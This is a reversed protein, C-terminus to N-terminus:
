VCLFHGLCWCCLLEGSAGLPLRGAALLSLSGDEFHVSIETLMNEFVRKHGLTNDVLGVDLGTVSNQFDAGTGTVQSNSNELLSSLHNGDLHIRSHGSLQGFSDLALGLLLLQFDHESVTDLGLEGVKVNANGVCRVLDRRRQNELQQVQRPRRSHGHEHELVLKGHTKQGSRTVRQVASQGDIHLHPGLDRVDHLDASTVESRRGIDLRRDDLDLDLVGTRRDVEVLPVTKQSDAENSLVLGDVGAELGGSDQGHQLLVVLGVQRSLSLDNGISGTEGFNDLLLHDLNESVSANSLHSRGLAVLGLEESQQVLEVLSADVKSLPGVSSCYM